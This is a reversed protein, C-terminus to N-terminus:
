HEVIKVYNLETVHANKLYKDVSHSKVKGKIQGRVKTLGEKTTLFKVMNGNGDHGNVSWCSLKLVFRSSIVTFDVEISQGVKGIYKSTFSLDTIDLDRKEMAIVSKLVQPIYAAIGIDQESSTEKELIEGVSKWFDNVKKSIMTQVMITTPIASIAESAQNRDEETITLTKGDREAYYGGVTNTILQRNTTVKVVTETLPDYIEPSKVVSNGNVRYAAFALAALDITPISVITISKKAKSM